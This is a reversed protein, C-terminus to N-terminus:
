RCPPKTGDSCIVTDKSSPPVVVTTNKEPERPASSSICGPLWVLSALFAIVPLVRM